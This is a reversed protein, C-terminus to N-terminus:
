APMNPPRGRIKGQLLPCAPWGPRYLPGRHSARGTPSPTKKTGGSKDLGVNWHKSLATSRQLYDYAIVINVLRQARELFLELTFADEALHLQTVVVLLGRLLLGTLLGLGHAASALQGALAGLAFAQQGAGSRTRGGSGTRGGSRAALGSGNPRD